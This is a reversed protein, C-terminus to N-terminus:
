PLGRAAREDVLRAVDLLALARVEVRRVIPAAEMIAALDEPSAAYDFDEWQEAAAGRIEIWGAMRGAGRALGIRGIWDQARERRGPDALAVLIEAVAGIFDGPLIFDADIYLQAGHELRALREIDATVAAAPTGAGEIRMVMVGVLLRAADIALIRRPRATGALPLFWAGRQRRAVGKVEGLPIGLAQSLGAYLKAFTTV